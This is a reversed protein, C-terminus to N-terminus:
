SCEDWTPQDMSDRRLSSHTSPNAPKVTPTAMSSRAPQSPSSYWKDRSKRSKMPTAGWAVLSSEKEWWTSWGGCAVIAARLTPDFIQGVTRPVAYDRANRDNVTTVLEFICQEGEVMAAVVYDRIDPHLIEGGRAEGFLNAWDAYIALLVTALTVGAGGSVELNPFRFALLTRDETLNGAISVAAVIEVDPGAYSRILAQTALAVGGGQSHGVIVLRPQTGPITAAARGADIASYSTDPRNGYGQVGANGLGAYDPLVTVFGSTVWPLALVDSSVAPDDPGSPACRDALGATGHAVVV